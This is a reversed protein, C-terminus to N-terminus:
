WNGAVSEIIGTWMEIWIHNRFPRGGDVCSAAFIDCRRLLDCNLSSGKNQAMGLVLAASIAEAATNPKPNISPKRHYLIKPSRQYAAVLEMHIADEDGVVLEAKM